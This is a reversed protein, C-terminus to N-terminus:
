ITDISGPVPKPHASREAGEGGPPAQGGEHRLWRRELYLSFGGAVALLGGIALVVSSVGYLDAIGGVVVLPILAVGNALVMQSAIVRGRMAEPTREHLTTQAPTNLMAYAFGLPGAFVMTLAVLISLGFVRDTGGEAFPNFRETQELGDAITEVLGIAAICVALGFLGAAVTRTKGLRAVVFPVARLGFLAGFAVPAFVAVANDAHVKLIAQMYRPVIIAFILILTSSMTIHGMALTSQPDARLSGLARGFEALAGRLEERGPFAGESEEGGDSGIYPLLRTLLSAVVFAGAAIVFMAGPGATKLIIPSLVILGAIQAITFGGSFLSNASILQQKPVMFPISAANSTTFLQSFSAFFFTITYLAWVHERGFFFAVAAVARGANTLILLRRKSWRDVLVGSFVGFAVTPVVFCLVVVSTSTTSETLDLVVIILAYLIANQATQSIIQALWLFRFSRNSLVPPLREEAHEARERVSRLM